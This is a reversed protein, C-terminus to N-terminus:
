ERRAGGPLPKIGVNHYGVTWWEDRDKVLVQLLSTRLTGDPPPVLGPPLAVSPDIKSAKEKRAGEGLKEPFIWDPFRPFYEINQCFERRM